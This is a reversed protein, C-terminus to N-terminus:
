QNRQELVGLFTSGIGVLLVIWMMADDVLGIVGFVAEPIIDLPSILYFIGFLIYTIFQWRRVLLLGNTAM